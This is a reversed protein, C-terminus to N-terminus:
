PKLHKTYLSPQALIRLAEQLSANDTNLVRLLYDNGAYLQGALQAKIDLALLQVARNRSGPQLPLGGKEATGTVTELLGPPVTFNKNFANFDPYAELLKARHDDLYEFTYKGTIGAASVSQLWGSYEVTDIPVYVDPMIGGGGYVTRKHLLTTYKLSDPFHIAGANLLEGSQLRTQINDDYQAGHYPKQISRGSPTFYRAGTLELVSGDFVPVPRQMLGKGFSRRGVILARDWDQLAGTLIEAASATSQDILVALRGEPFQGFGGTYYYDRGKDRGVSYFVLKDKPLFEDAVGIAAQVYGGGNGQLDLVLNQMGQQKLAILAKDMEQRTTENFIRLAIYGTKDNIMYAARVSHDAVFDRELQKKFPAQVYRRFIELAVNTGKQGRIKKMVAYSTQRSGTVREGDVSLIRDGAQLGAKEAPGGATVQTIYVSDNEMMFQIGVGAFRGKMAEQQEESELRGFYHSHPDLEKMMGAIAAEVLRNEGLSDVYNEEIAKLTQWLKEKPNVQAKLTGTFSAMVAAAVAMRRMRM